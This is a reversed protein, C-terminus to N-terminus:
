FKFFLSAWYNLNACPDNSARRKLAIWDMIIVIADAPLYNAFTNTDLITGTITAPCFCFHKKSPMFAGFLLLPASKGKFKVLSMVFLNQPRIGHAFQALRDKASLLHQM